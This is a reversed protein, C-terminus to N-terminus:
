TKRIKPNRKRTENPVEHGETRLDCLINMVNKSLPSRTLALTM